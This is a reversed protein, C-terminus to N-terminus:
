GNKLARRTNLKVWEKLEDVPILQRSGVPTIRLDAIVKREFTDVSIRLAAAAEDRTYLLTNAPVEVFKQPKRAPPPSTALERELWGEPLGLWAQKEEESLGDLFADEARYDEDLARVLEDDDHTVIWPM